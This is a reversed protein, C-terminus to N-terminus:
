RPAMVSGAAVLVFFMCADVTSYAIHGKVCLSFCRFVVYPLVRRGLSSM